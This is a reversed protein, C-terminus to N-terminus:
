LKRFFRTLSREANCREEYLTELRSGIDWRVHSEDIEANWDHVVIFDGSKLAPTYMRFEEPKDGNDCYILLPHNESAGITDLLWKSGRLVNEERYHYTLRLINGLPGSAAEPYHIDVTFFEIGRNLCQCLLFLSFGGRYSGLEILLKVEFENLFDEWIWFDRREQAAAVGCWTTARPWNELKWWSEGKKETM